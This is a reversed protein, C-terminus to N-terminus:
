RTKPKPGKPMRAGKPIPGKPMQMTAPLARLRDNLEGVQAKNLNRPLKMIHRQLKGIPIQGEEDGVQIDYIPVQAAARALRKKEAGLLPAVRSAPGESVLLVGPRGVARHVLDLSRNGSVAPTVTWGGRMNDLVSAAAGPQGAIMKYQTRQAMQGFVIMGVLIGGMIGLPVLFLLQDILLGIIVVVILTGIAAGFVIPLAKPNAQHLVKALAGIQKIRGPRAAGDTPKNPM